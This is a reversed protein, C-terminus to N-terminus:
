LLSRPLRRLVREAIIAIKWEIFVLPFCGPSDAGLLEDKGDERGQGGVGLGRRLKRRGTRDHDRRVLDPGAFTGRVRSPAHQDGLAADLGDARGLFHRNRGVGFADSEGAFGEDRAHDVQVRVDEQVRVVLGVPVVLHDLLRDGVADHQGAAV